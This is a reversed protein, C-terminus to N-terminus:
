QPVFFHEAKMNRCIRRGLGLTPSLQMGVMRYIETPTLRPNRAIERLLEIETLFFMGRYEEPGYGEMALIWAPQLHIEGNMLEWLGTYGLTVKLDVESDDVVFRPGNERTLGNMFFSFSRNNGCTITALSGDAMRVKAEVRSIKEASSLSAGSVARFLANVLPQM